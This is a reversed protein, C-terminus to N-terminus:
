KGSSQDWKQISVITHSLTKSFSSPAGLFFLCFFVFKCCFDDDVFKKMKFFDVFRQIKTTTKLNSDVKENRLTSIQDFRKDLCGVHRGRRLVNSSRQLNGKSTGPAKSWPIPPNTKTFHLSSTCIKVYVYTIHIYTYIYIYSIYIYIYICMIIVIYM